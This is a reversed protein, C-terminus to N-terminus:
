KRFVVYLLETGIVEKGAIEFCKPLGAEFREGYFAEMGRDRGGLSRIPFSVALKKVSLEEMLRFGRGKEQADLVPLLKFLFAADATKEPAEAAADMPEATGRIGALAFFRKILSLSRMDIDSAWYERVSPLLGACFPAFGCGPDLVSVPNELKEALFGYFESLFPLRERTSAHLSCIERLEEESLMRKGREAEELIGAARRHCDGNEFAGCLIHLRRKVAKVCDRDKKYKACEERSIKEVLGPFVFSYKGEAAAAAADEARM